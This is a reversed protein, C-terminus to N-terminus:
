TTQGGNTQMARIEDRLIAAREYDEAAIAAALEAKKTTLATDEPSSTPPTETDPRRGCHAADAGHMGALTARLQDAFTTYCEACGVRGSTAIESFSSGCFTCRKTKQPVRSASPAFIGGLLSSFGGDIGYGYVAACESCLAFTETSGNVTQKYYVTAPKTHCKQCLM